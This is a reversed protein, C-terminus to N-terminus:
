KPFSHQSLLELDVDKYDGARINLNDNDLMARDIEINRFKDALSNDTITRAVEGIMSEFYLNSLPCRAGLVIGSVYQRLGKTFFNSDSVFSNDDGGTINFVLRCEEEYSWDTSKYSIASCIYEGLSKPGDAIASVPICFRHETYNVKHIQIRRNPIISRVVGHQVHPFFIPFDFVLCVGRNQDAYHGWIASSTIRASFSLVLMPNVKNFSRFTRECVYEMVQDETKKNSCVIKPSFECLDNSKTLDCLKIEDKRLFEEAYKAPM